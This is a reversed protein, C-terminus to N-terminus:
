LGKLCQGLARAWSGEAGQWHLSATQYWSTSDENVGWRADAGSDLLVHTSVGLGLALHAVLTDISIVVDCAAARAALDDFDDDTVDEEIQMKGEATAREEDTHSRQLSVLTRGEGAFRTLIDELKVSRNKAKEDPHRWNLGIITNDSGGWKERWADVHDADAKLYGNPIDDYDNRYAILKLPLSGTPCQFHSLGGVILDSPPNSRPVVDITPFSREFLPVLRPDAEFIVPDPGKKILAHVLAAYRVEDSASGEGWLLISKDRLKSGDWLPAEFNRRKTGVRRDSTYAAFRAEYNDWGEPHRGVALLTYALITRTVADSGDKAVADEGAKVAKKLKGMKMFVEAVGAMARGSNPQLETTQQYAEQAEDLRDLSMLTSGLSTWIEPSEPHSRLAARLDKYATDADGKAILAEAKETQAAVWEPADEPIMDFCRFAEKYAGIRWAVKAMLYLAEPTEPALRWAEEARELAEDARDVELLLNVAKSRATMPASDVASDYAAIAAEFDGKAALKDGQVLPDAM